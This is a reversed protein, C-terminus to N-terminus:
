SHLLALPNGCGRLSGHIPFLEKRVCLLGAVQASGNVPRLRMRRGRLILGFGFM